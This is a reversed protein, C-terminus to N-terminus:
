IGFSLVSWRGSTIWSSVAFDNGGKGRGRLDFTLLIPMMSDYIINASSLARESTGTIAGRQVHDVRLGPFIGSEANASGESGDCYAGRSLEAECSVDGCSSFGCSMALSPRCARSFRLCELERSRFDLERMCAFFVGSFSGAAANASAESGDCFAGPLLGRSCIVCACSSFGCSM